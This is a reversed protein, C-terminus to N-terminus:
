DRSVFVLLDGAIKKWSPSFSELLLLHLNLNIVTRLKIVVTAPLFSIKWAIFLSPNLVKTFHIHPQIWIFDEVSIAPWLMLAKLKLFRNTQTDYEYISDLIISTLRCFNHHCSSRTNRKIIGGLKMELFSICAAFESAQEIWPEEMWFNAIM